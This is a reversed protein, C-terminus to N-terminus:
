PVLLNALIRKVFSSWFRSVCCFEVMIARVSSGPGTAVSPPIPTNGPRNFGIKFSTIFLGALPANVCSKQAVAGSTAFSASRYLPCNKFPGPFIVWPESLDRFLSSAWDSQFIESCTNSPTSVYSRILPWPYMAWTVCWMMEASSVLGPLKVPSPFTKRRLSQLFLHIHKCFLPYFNVWQHSRSDM